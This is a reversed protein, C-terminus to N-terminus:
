TMNRLFLHVGLLGLNTRTLVNKKKQLKVGRTQILITTCKKMGFTENSPAFRLVVFKPANTGGLNNMEVSSGPRATYSSFM